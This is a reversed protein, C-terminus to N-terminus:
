IIIKLYNTDILIKILEKNIVVASQSAYHYIWDPKHVLTFITYRNKGDDVFGVFSSNFRNRYINKEVIHSTGTKGYINLGPIYTNKGTGNMVVKKLSRQVEKCYKLPFIKKQIITNNDELLTLPKLNCNNAITNYAQLISLPTTMFGYGYSTTAKYIFNNDIISKIKHESFKNKVIYPLEISPKNLLNLKSFTKILEKGDTNKIIKSIGVNSSHVIVNEASLQNYKSHDDTITHKGIKLKGGTVDIISEPTIVNSNLASLYSIPKIISGPEYLFNVFDNKTNDVEIENEWFNSSSISLIKGTKTDVIGVLIKKSGFKKNYKKLMLSIKKTLISDISLSIDTTEKIDKNQNFPSSIQLKQTQFHNYYWKEFGNIANNNNYFGLYPQLFLGESSTKRIKRTNQLQFEPFYKFSKNQYSYNKFSRLDKIDFLFTEINKKDNISLNELIKFRTNQIKDYDIYHTAWKKKLINILFTYSDVYIYKPNIYLDFLKNNSILPIKNKDLINPLNQVTKYNTFKNFPNLYHNDRISNLKIFIVFIIIFFLYFLPNLKKNHIVLKTEPLFWKSESKKLDTFPGVITWDIDMKQM